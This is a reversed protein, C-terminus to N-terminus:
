KEQWRPRAAGSVNFSGGRPSVVLSRKLRQRYLSVQGVSESGRRSYERHGESLVRSAGGLTSESVRRSYERHGESLVRPSDPLTM